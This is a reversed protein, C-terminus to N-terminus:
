TREEGSTRRRRAPKEGRYSRREALDVRHRPAGGFFEPRSELPESSHLRVLGARTLVEAAVPAWESERRFELPVFSQIHGPLACMSPGHISVNSVSLVEQM